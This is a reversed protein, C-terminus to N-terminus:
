REGPRVHVVDGAAVAVPPAGAPHVVLRGAVDVETAVGELVRGGPLHVRVARGVTSCRQVYASRLTSGDVVAGDPDGGADRWRALGDELAALVAVLVEERGARSGELHLSTATPVPLEAAALSVNLGIGVVVLPAPGASAECLIGGLKRDGVLVDNPWKLCGRVGTAAAVARVVAVGSLLPLWGWRDPPVRPEVAASLLLGARPPSEWARGHRGRGGDQAEAVLVAGPCLARARALLDANTSGTREVVRVESWLRGPGTVRQGVAAPDLPPRGSM